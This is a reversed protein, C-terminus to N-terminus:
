ATKNAKKPWGAKVFDTILNTVAPLNASPSPTGEPLYKAFEPIRELLQKYTNCGYTVTRLKTELNDLMERQAKSKAQLENLVKRAEESYQINTMTDKGSDPVFLSVGYDRFYSLRIYGRLISDKYIEAVPAPLNKVAEELIIKKIQEQYDEKPVDNLVSKIFAERIYKTLKM